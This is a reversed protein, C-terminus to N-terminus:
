PSAPASALLTREVMEQIVVDPREQEVIEHDCTYQWSYRVRSFNEALLPILWTGFSDRFVVARPLRKDPHEFVIDPGRAPLKGEPPSPRVEHALGPKIMKLDLYTDWFYSRMGLLLSLDRGPESYCHFSDFASIPVPKIQPFWTSVAKVIQTYGVYEGRNNWHTDTRYFVQNRTKEDM